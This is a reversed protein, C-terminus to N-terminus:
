KDSEWRVLQSEPVFKSWKSEDDYNSSAFLRVATYMLAARTPSVGAALLEQIRHLLLWSKGVRRMGIVVDAKGPVGLLRGQRPTASPIDLQAFEALRTRLAERYREEMRPFTISM